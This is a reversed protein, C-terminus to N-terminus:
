GIAPQFLDTDGLIEGLARAIVGPRFSEVWLHSGAERAPWTEGALTEVTPELVRIPGTYHALRTHAPYLPLIAVLPREMAAAVHM